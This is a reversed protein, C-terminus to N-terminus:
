YIVYAAKAENFQKLNVIRDFLEGGKLFESVIYYNSEDELLEFIRMIHPHSTKQLVELESMM